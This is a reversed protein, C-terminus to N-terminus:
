IVLFRLRRGEAFCPLTGCDLPKSVGEVRELPSRRKAAKAEGPGALIESCSYLASDATLRLAGRYASCHPANWDPLTNSLCLCRTRRRLETASSRHSMSLGSGNRRKGAEPACDQSSPCNRMRRTKSITMIPAKKACGGRM